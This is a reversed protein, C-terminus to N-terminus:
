KEELLKLFEPDIWASKVQGPKVQVSAPDFPQLLNLFEGFDSALKTLPEPLEHDWFFVAGQQDEDVVVYNGCDDWAIPYAHASLDDLFTLEHPIEAVPIFQRVGSENDSGVKFINNEPEAGDSAEVFTRFAASLCCGLASELALIDRESAPKGGNIAINM